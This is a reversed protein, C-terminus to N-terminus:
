KPNTPEMKTVKRINKDKTNQTAPMAPIDDLCRGACRWITKKVSATKTGM